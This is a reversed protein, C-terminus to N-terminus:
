RPWSCRWSSSCWRPALTAQEQAGSPRMLAPPPRPPPASALSAPLAAPATCRACPSTPSAASCSPPSTPLSATTPQRRAAADATPTRLPLTAAGARCCGDASLVAAGAFCCGEAPITAAAPCSRPLQVVLAAPCSRPISMADPVLSMACHCSAGIVAVRDLALCLM